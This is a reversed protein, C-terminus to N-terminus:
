HIAADDQQFVFSFGDSLDILRTKLLFRDCAVLFTDESVRGSKRRNKKYVHLLNLTRGGRSVLRASNFCSIIVANVKRVSYM